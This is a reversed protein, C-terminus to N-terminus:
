TYRGRTQNYDYLAEAPSLIRNYEKHEGIYGDLVAATTVESGLYLTVGADTVRTGIPTSSETLGGGVTKAVGNVYLIPNNGVAGNNYTLLLHTPTNITVVTATTIWIGANTSFGRIFEIKVKSAAESKAYLYTQSKDFIRGESLEGDSGVNIWTVTTGGPPDFINDIPAGSGCNIIDDTQDFFRGLKSGSYLAGIVAIDRRYPDASKFASGRLGPSWLPLYLVCGGPIPNYSWLSKPYKLAINM